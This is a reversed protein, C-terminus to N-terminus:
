TAAAVCRFGIVSNKGSPIYHGRASARCGEASYSWSGGRNVREVGSPPGVPDKCNGRQYILPVYWDECWEWINGHCDYLGWANPELSGVNHTQNNSNKDFWGVKALSNGDDGFCYKTTSGARCLYEWEVETPLRIERGASKSVFSCFAKADYWSVSEVPRSLGQFYSPNVGMVAQYEAQTVTFVGAFIGKSLEVNHVPMEDP